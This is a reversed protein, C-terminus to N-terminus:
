CMCCPCGLINHWREIMNLSYRVADLNDVTDQEVQIYFNCHHLSSQIGKCQCCIGGVVKDAHSNGESLHAADRTSSNDLGFFNTDGHILEERLLRLSHTAPKLSMNGLREHILRAHLFDALPPM